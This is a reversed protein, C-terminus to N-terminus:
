QSEGVKAAWLAPLGEAIFRITVDKRRGTATAFSGRATVTALDVQFRAIYWAWDDLTKPRLTVRLAHRGQVDVSVVEPLHDRMSQALLAAPSDDPVPERLAQTPALRQTIGDAPPAAAEDDEYGAVTWREAGRDWVVSWANRDTLTGDLDIGVPMGAAAAANLADAIAVWYERETRPVFPEPEDPGCDPGSCDERRGRHTTLAGHSPDPGEHTTEKATLAPSNLLKTVVNMADILPEEEADRLAEWAEQLVRGRYRSWDTKLDRVYDDRLKERAAQVDALDKTQQELETLLRQAEDATEPSQLLQAPELAVAAQAALDYSPGHQWAANIVRLAASALKSMM